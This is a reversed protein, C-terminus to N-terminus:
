KRVVCAMCPFRSVGGVEPTPPCMERACSSANPQRVPTRAGTEGGGVRCNHAEPSRSDRHVAPHTAVALQVHGTGPALRLPDRSGLGGAPGPVVVTISVSHGTPLGRVPVLVLDRLGVGLPTGRRGWGRLPCAPPRRRRGGSGPVSGWPEASSRPAGAGCASPACPCPGRGSPRQQSAGAEPTFQM